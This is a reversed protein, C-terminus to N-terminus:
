DNWRDILWRVGRQLPEVYAGMEFHGAGDIADFAVSRNMQQLDRVVAEAPRFPVVDDERSHIVYTPMRALDAVPTGGTAGAMVIAGTFLDPHRASLTWTGRGGMSFGTVMVRRTDIAWDVIIRRVLAVVAQETAPDAWSPGTADPAIVIADLEYYLAPLVVQEMFTGGIYPFREGGPHLALVLPVPQRGDYGRPVSVTYQLTTGGPAQFTARYIGPDLPRQGALLAACMLLFRM